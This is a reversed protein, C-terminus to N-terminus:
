ISFPGITEPVKVKLGNSHTEHTIGSVMRLTRQEPDNNGTMWITAKKEFKKKEMPM